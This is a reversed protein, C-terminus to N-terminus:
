IVVVVVVVMVIVGADDSADVVVVVSVICDADCLLRVGLPAGVWRGGSGVAGGRGWDGGDGLERRLRQPRFVM